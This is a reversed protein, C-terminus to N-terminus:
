YVQGVFCYVFHYVDALLKDDLVELVVVAVSTDAVTIFLGNGAVPNFGGFLEKGDAGTGEDDVIFDEFDSEGTMQHNYVGTFLKLDPVQLILDENPININILCGRNLVEKSDARFFKNNVEGFVTDTDPVVWVAENEFGIASRDWEGPDVDVGFGLVKATEIDFAVKDGPEDIEAIEDFVEFPNADGVFDGDGVLAILVVFLDIQIDFVSAFQDFVEILISQIFLFFFDTEFFHIADSLGHFSGEEVLVFFIDFDDECVEVGDLLIFIFAWSDVSM